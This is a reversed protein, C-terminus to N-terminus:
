VGGTVPAPAHPVGWRHSEQTPTGACLRALGSGRPGLPHAPTARGRGGPTYWRSARHNAKQRAQGKLEKARGEAEMQENEILKGVGKKIKGGAEQVSGKVREAAKAAEQKAEGKLETARGEAEMQQNGILDGVGKKVKGGLEEAAGEIRKGTNNM